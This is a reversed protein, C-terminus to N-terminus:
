ELSALVVRLLCGPSLLEALLVFAFLTKELDLVSVQLDLDLIKPEFAVQGILLVTDEFVLHLLILALHLSQQVRLLICLCQLVFDGRQLFAPIFHHLKHIHRVAACAQREQHVEDAGVLVFLFAFAGDGPRRNALRIAGARRLYEDLFPLDEAVQPLQGPLLCRGGLHVVM